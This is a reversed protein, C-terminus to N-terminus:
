LATVDAVTKGQLEDHKERVKPHTYAYAGYEMEIEKGQPDRVKVKPKDAGIKDHYQSWDADTGHKVISIARALNEPNYRPGGLREVWKGSRILDARTLADDYGAEPSKANAVNGMLTLFGFTAYMMLEPQNSPDFIREVSKGTAKFTYRGGFCTPYDADDLIADGASNLWERESRRQRPPDSLNLNTM